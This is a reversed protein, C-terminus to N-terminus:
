GAIKEARTRIQLLFEFMALVAAVLLVVAWGLARNMQLWVCFAAWFGVWMAQRLIILVHPLSGKGFRRNLYYILPLALGTVTALVAALFAIIAEQNAAQLLTTPDARDLATDRILDLRQVDIPWINDIIHNLALIGLIFLATGLLVYLIAGFQDALRKIAQMPAQM